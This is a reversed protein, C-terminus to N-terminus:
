IAKSVYVASIRAVFEAEINPCLDFQSKDERIKPLEVVVFLVVLIAIGAIVFCYLLTKMLSPRIMKSEETEGAM